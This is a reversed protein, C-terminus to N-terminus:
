ITFSHTHGAAVQVVGNIIQHQHGANISTTGNIDAPNLISSDFTITHSHNQVRDTIVTRQGTTIALQGNTSAPQGILNLRIIADNALSFLLAFEDVIPVDTPSSILKIGVRLNKTQHQNPVEFVKNPSIVFYDSFDTSDLGTVGWVIDTVPPNICGNYTLIGQQLDDPLSFNTTFYHVAQSTRLGIDVSHLVPSPAGKQFTTLTARFQLFQGTINTIDNNVPNTFEKTWSATAVDQNTNASRVAFTISTGPPTTANWALSIWQVFSNTGNFIESFYVAVEQEVLNGSYFPESGDLGFIVNSNEDIELLRSKGISLGATTGSGGDGTTLNICPAYCTVLAGTADTISTVNGAADRFRVYACVNPNLTTPAASTSAVAVNRLVLINNDATTSNSTTSELAIDHATDDVAAVFEWRQGTFKYIDQDVMAYMLQIFRLRNVTRNPTQFSKIFIQEDPIFRLIKGNPSSGAFLIGSASTDATSAIATMAYDTDAHVIIPQGTTPDFRFVKGSRSGNLGHIHNEAPQIVGNIVQHTHGDPAATTVTNIQSLRTIGLPVVVFHRHGKTTTTQLTEGPTVTENATTWYLRGDFTAFGTVATELTNKFLQMNGFQDYTYIEGNGSYGLYVLNNFVWLSEVRQDVALPLQTLTTGNWTFAKGNIGTGIILNNGFAIMSRVEAEGTDFLLTMIKTARNFSYVRGPNLTGVLLTGNFDYFINNTMGAPPPTTVGGPLIDPPTSAVDGTTASASAPLQFVYNSQFPIFPVPTTGDVTFDTRPSIQMDVVGTVADTATLSLVFSDKANVQTITACGTPPTVDVAIEGAIDCITPDKLISYVCGNTGKTAVFLKEDGTADSFTEMDSVRILLPTIEFGRLWNPLSSSRSDYAVYVIADALLAFQLYNDAIEAADASPLLLHEAKLLEQPLGTIPDLVDSYFSQGITISPVSVALSPTTIAGILPGTQGPLAVAFVSYQMTSVNSAGSSFNAGFIISGASMRKRYLLYKSSGTDVSAQNINNNNNDFNFDHVKRWSEYVCVEVDDSASLPQDFIVWPVSPDVTFGSSLQRGNVAVSVLAKNCGGYPIPGGLIFYYQFDRVSSDGIIGDQIGYAIFKNCPENFEVLGTGTALWLVNVSDIASSNIAGVGLGSSPPFSTFTAGQLISLGFGTGIIKRSQPDITISRVDRSLLGNSNNYIISNKPKFRVLGSDTGLWVDGNSEQAVAQIRNSPLGDNTTYVFISFGTTSASTSATADPTASTTPVTTRNSIVVLGNDTGVFVNNSLARVTLINNSPLTNSILNFQTTDNTTVSAGASAAPDTLTSGSGTTQQLLMLGENTGAWVVNNADVAISTISDSVLNNALSKYNTFLPTAFKPQARGALFASIAETARNMNFSSIGDNTAIWLNGNADTTMDTIVDNVLGTLQNWAFLRLPERAGCFFMSFEQWQSAAKINADINGFEIRKAATAAVIPAANIQFARFEHRNFVSNGPTPTGYIVIEDMVADASASGHFQYDGFFLSQGAPNWSFSCDGNRVQPVEIGNVFITMNACITIVTTQTAGLSTANILRGGLGAIIASTTGAGNFNAEVAHYKGSVGLDVFNFTAGSNTSIAVKNVGWPIWVKTSVSSVCLLDPVIVDPGALSLNTWTAGDPTSLISGANGVVYTTFPGGQHTRNLANWDSILPVGTAASFSGGTSLFIQGNKGIAIITVGDGLIGVSNFDYTPATAAFTAATWSLGGNTSTLITGDAGVAYGISTTKFFISKLDVTVGSDIVTWSSGGNTTLLVTGLEGCAFGTNVNIFDISFIDYQVGSGQKTWTNGGDTTKFISGNAGCAFGISASPFSLGLITSTGIDSSDWITRLHVADNANWFTPNAIVTEHIGGSSDVIRFSMSNGVFEPGVGFSMTNPTTTKLPANGFFVHSAVSSSPWHPKVYMDIAGSPMIFPDTSISFGGRFGDGAVRGFDFGGDDAPNFLSVGAKVPATTYVNVNHFPTGNRPFQGDPETLFGNADFTLIRNKVETGITENLPFYALVSDDTTSSFSDYGTAYITQLSDDKSGEWVIALDGNTMSAAAPTTNQTLYSKIKVDLGDKASSIILSRGVAISTPNNITTFSFTFPQGVIATASAPCNFAPLTTVAPVLAPGTSQSGSALVTLTFDILASGVDNNSVVLLDYVGPTTPTGNLVGVGDAFAYGFGDPLKLSGLKSVYLEFFGERTRDSQYVITLAGFKDVGISPNVSSGRSSTYRTSSWLQSDFNLLVGASIEPKGFQYTEWAAFFMGRAQTLSVNRAMGNTSIKIPLTPTVSATGQVGSTAYIEAIGGIDDEWAIVFKAVTDSTVKPRHAHSFFSNKFLLTPQVIVQMSAPTNSQSQAFKLGPQPQTGTEVQILAYYIQSGTTDASTGEWVVLITGGGLEVLDPTRSNSSSNTLRLLDNWNVGQPTVIGRRIFIESNGNEDNDYAVFVQGTSHKLVRPNQSDFSNNSVLVTPTWAKDGSVVQWGSPGISSLDDGTDLEILVDDIVQKVSYQITKTPGIAPSPVSVGGIQQVVPNLAQNFLQLIDGPKVTSKFSADAAILVNNPIGTYDFQGVSSLGLNIRTSLINSNPNFTKSGVIGGGKAVTNAVLRSYSIISGDKADEQWVAHIVGADDAFVAPMSQSAQNHAPVTLADAAFILNRWSQENDGKAYVAINTNKGIIRVTYFQDTFNQTGFIAANKLRVGRQFFQVVEQWAGDNVYVSPAFLNDVNPTSSGIGCQAQTGDALFSTIADVTGGSGDDIVKVRVEVTWGTANDASQVWPDSLQNQVFKHFKGGIEATTDITLIENTLSECSGVCNDDLRWGNGNLPQDFSTVFDFPDPKGGIIYQLGKNTGIYKGTAGFVSATRNPDIVVASISTQTVALVSRNEPLHGEEFRYVSSSLDPDVPDVSAYLADRYTKMRGVSSEPFAMTQELLIDETNAPPFAGTTTYKFSDWSSFIHQNRGAIDGFEIIKTSTPQTFKSSADIALQGDIYLKVNEGQGTLRYSHPLTGDISFSFPQDLLLEVHDVFVRLYGFSTGDYFRIGQFQDSGCNEPAAAPLPLGLAAATDIENQAQDANASSILTELDNQAQNFDVNALDYATKAASFATFDSTSTNQLTATAAQLIINARQLNFVGDAFTTPTTLNLAM